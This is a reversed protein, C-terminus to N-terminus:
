DSTALLRYRSGPYILRVVTVNQPGSWTRRRIMLCPENRPISLLKYQWPLPMVAEVEQETRTIPAVQTLYANPTTTNYDQDLYHPAVLPNVFRDEVQLPIGDESHTIISHFVDSGLPLGLAEALDLTAAERRIQVVKAMHVNGRERIEDAINRVDFLASSAKKVAVFSGVGLVRVIAGESALERLARNATMRSVGLDAVVENESPIRHHPPWVGSDIRNRIYTKVAEYLPAVSNKFTLFDQEAVKNAM